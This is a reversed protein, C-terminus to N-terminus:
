LDRNGRRPPHNLQFSPAAAKRLEDPSSQLRVPVQGDLSLNVSQLNSESLTARTADVVYDLQAIQKYYDRKRTFIIEPIDQAKVVIEDRDALRALSVIIWERYLDPAQLQAMSLLASVDAMGAIPEFGSGSRVLRIGDLWPLSAIM